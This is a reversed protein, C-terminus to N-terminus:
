RCVMQRECIVEAKFIHSSAISRTVMISYRRAVEVEQVFCCKFLILDAFAASLIEIPCSQSNASSLGAM